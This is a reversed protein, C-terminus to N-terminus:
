TSRCTPTNRAACSPASATTTASRARRPVLHRARLRSDRGAQHRVVAGHLRPDRRDRDHHHAGEQRGARGAPQRGQAPLRRGAGAQRLRVDRAAVRRADLPLRHGRGRGEPLRLGVEVPHRHDQDDPRRRQHGEDRRGGQHGAAGDPDRHRLAGDDLRDRGDHERPLEGGQAGKSKRHKVISYFMVGFVGVFIVTCIVLM